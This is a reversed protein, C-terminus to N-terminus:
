TVFGEVRGREQKEEQDDRNMLWKWSIQNAEHNTVFNNSFSLEADM